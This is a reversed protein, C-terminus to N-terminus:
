QNSENFAGNSYLDRKVKLIVKLEELKKLNKNAINLSENPDNKLDYLFYEEKIFNRKPFEYQESHNLKWNHNQLSELKYYFNENLELKVFGYRISYGFSYDNIEKNTGLIQKFSKGQMTPPSKIGLLDILSPAIDILQIIQQQRVQESLNPIKLIFPINLNVNHLNGEANAATKFFYGNEGQYDGHETLLVVITNKEMNLQKIKDFLPQLYYDAEAIEADYLDKLLDIEKKELYYTKEKEEVYAFFSKMLFKDVGNQKIPIMKDKAMFCEKDLTQNSQIDISFKKRFPESPNFPCHLDYAQLFLFKKEKQNQELWKTALPVLQKTGVSYTFPQFKIGYDAYQARDFYLDFTKGLGWGFEYDEDSVFAATKYGAKSLIDPLSPYKLLTTFTYNKRARVYAQHIQPSVSYFLSMADTYTLAAPAIVNDFRISNEFFNSINPTTDKSYGYFSMRDKRLSTLSIIILNCDKCTKFEKVLPKKNCASVALLILTLLLNISKSKKSM